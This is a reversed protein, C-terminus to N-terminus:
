RKELLAALRALSMRWGTENDDPALGPPLGDHIARLDTGDNSDSLIITITMEGRMAPDDTEFEDVEVVQRNPVLRLFRGHYTDTGGSTKGSETPADHTLSIRFTGGEHPEFHHVHCSMGDPVKWQAIAAPDLLIRYVIERPANIHKSIHTATM